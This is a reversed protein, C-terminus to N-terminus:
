EVTKMQKIMIDGFVAYGTTPDSVLVHTLAGVFKGNQIVPSGSMGQIIGGTKELLEEDTVKVIMSKNNENNGKFIKQIQVEYEKTEGNELTCLISAKGTKIENRSVVEMERSQDLNFFHNNIMNGYIGFETNSYIKGITSSQEISGEIRGPNDKEGKKVNEIKSTVIEGTEIEVIEGTDIDQISHGLTACTNTTKEYFTATGVGAASDRVWLGLKYVNESVKVPTISGTKEDGNKLYTIQMEKGKWKSVCELLEDTNKVEENNIKIISDGQEIGSDEYPKHIQNNEDEIQSTGVVLVGKTYLKLGIINGLPIVKTEPIINAKITKLNIGLLSVNYEKTQVEQMESNTKSINAGVQMTEGIEVGAITRLNMEENQFLLIDEPISTINAVYALLLLLISLILIKFINKKYFLFM